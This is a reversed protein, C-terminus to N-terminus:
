NIKTIKFTANLDKQTNSIKVIYIGPMLSQLDIAYQMQQGANSQENRVVVSKGLVDYVEIKIDMNQEGFYQINLKSMVPNPFVSLIVQTNDPLKISTSVKGDPQQFGQTLILDSNNSVTETFYDGVTFSLKMEKNEFYGGGMAIVSRDLIIQSSAAIAIAMCVVTASIIKKM